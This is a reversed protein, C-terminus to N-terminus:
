SRVSLNIFVINAFHHLMYTCVELVNWLLYLPVHFYIVKLLTFSHMDHIIQLHDEKTASVYGFAHVGSKSHKTIIYTVFGKGERGFKRRGLNGGEGRKWIEEKEGHVYLTYM